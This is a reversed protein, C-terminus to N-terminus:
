FRNPGANRIPEDVDAEFEKFNEHFMNALKKAASDYEDKNQWTNKPNLVESPVGAVEQPIHLGFFPDTETEVNDM